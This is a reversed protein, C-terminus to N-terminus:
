KITVAVKYPPWINESNGNQLPLFQLVFLDPSKGSIGCDTVPLDSIQLWLDPDTDLSWVGVGLGVNSRTLYAM